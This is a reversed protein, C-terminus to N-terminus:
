IEKGFFHIACIVDLDGCSLFSITTYRIVETSGFTYCSLRNICYQGLTFELRSLDLM